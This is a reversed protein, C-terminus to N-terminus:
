PKAPATPRSAQGPATDSKGPELDTVQAPEAHAPAAASPAPAPLEAAAVLAPAPAQAPAPAALAAPVAEVPAGAPGSPAPPPSPPSAPAPAAQPQAPRLLNPAVVNPGGLVAVVLLAVYGVVAALAAWGIARVRGLSRGSSDVFM